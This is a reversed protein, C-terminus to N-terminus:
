NYFLKFQKGTTKSKVVVADQQAIKGAITFVISYKFRSYDKTVEVM